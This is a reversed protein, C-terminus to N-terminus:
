RASASRSCRASAIRRRRRSASRVLCCLFGYLCILVLCGLFGWEEAFVAFPFDTFQDPFFGFQNQTGRM